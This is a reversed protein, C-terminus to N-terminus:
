NVSTNKQRNTRLIM